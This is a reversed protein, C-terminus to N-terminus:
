LPKVRTKCNRRKNYYNCNRKVKSNIKQIKRISKCERKYFQKTYQQTLLRHKRHYQKVRKARQIKM